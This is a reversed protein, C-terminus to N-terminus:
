NLYPHSPDHYQELLGRLAPSAKDIYEELIENIITNAVYSYSVQPNDLTSILQFIQSESFNGYQKLKSSIRISKAYSDSNALESLLKDLDSFSNSVPKIKCIKAVNEIKSEEFPYSCTIAHITYAFGYPITGDICIPLIKKKCGIAIGTEQDTYKSSHFNKTLLMIFIKSNQIEEYLKSPWHAGVEIDEHALFVSLGYRSLNSKLESAIKKDMHSHSLFIKINSNM